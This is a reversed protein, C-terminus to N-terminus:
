DGWVISYMIYDEGLNNYKRLVGEQKFGLFKAFRHDVETDPAVMEIRRYKKRLEQLCVVLIKCVSYYQKVLAMGPFFVVECVGQHKPVFGGVALIETSNRVVQFTGVQLMQNVVQRAEMDTFVEMVSFMKPNSLYHKVTFEEVVM